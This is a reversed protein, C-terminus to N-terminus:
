PYAVGRQVPYTGGSVSRADGPGHYRVDNTQVQTGGRELVLVSPSEGVSPATLYVDARGMPVFAGYLQTRVSDGAAEPEVVWVAWRHGDEYLPEGDAGVTVDSAVVLREDVGDGDLDATLGRQVPWAVSEELPPGEPDIPPWYAGSAEATSHRTCGSAVLALVLSSFVFGHSM